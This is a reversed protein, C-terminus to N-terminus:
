VTGLFSAWRGEFKCASLDDAAVRWELASLVPAEDPFFIKAALVMDDFSRIHGLRGKTQILQNKMAQRATEDLNLKQKPNIIQMQKGALFYSFWNGEQRYEELYGEMRKLTKADTKLDYAPDILKMQM